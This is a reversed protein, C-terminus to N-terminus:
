VGDVTTVAIINVDSGFFVVDTADATMRNVSFLLESTLCGDSLELM